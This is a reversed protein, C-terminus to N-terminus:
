PVPCSPTLRKIQPIVEEGFRQITELTFRPDMGPWDVMFWMFEAAFEQHYAMVQEVVEAPSGLILRDQKLEDFAVDYREGPQGWQKYRQYRREYGERIRDEAERASDAICLDRFIFLGKFQKGQRELAAKYVPMAERLFAKSHRRSAIWHDAIEPVRAVTKVTDAGMLIPPGPRQMPKPAITVGDLHFFRGHFNVADESWLKRIVQLGEVLRDRRQRKEIGFSNFESDRYGLGVGFLFKGGSLNDLTAVYEAVMVPHHLALLFISTGLYMGPVQGALYALLPISQLIAADPGTVYHQAVFLAEFNSRYALQARQSVQQCAEAPNLDAPYSGFEIGFRM